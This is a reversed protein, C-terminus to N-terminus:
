LLAMQAPDNGRSRWIREAEERTVERAGMRVAKARMPETLEYHHCREKQFWERKLGLQSAFSHLEGDHDAFLRCASSWKWRASPTCPMSPDVYIM